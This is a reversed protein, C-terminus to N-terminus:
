RAIRSSEDREWGAYGARQAYLKARMRSLVNVMLYALLKPWLRWAVIMESITSSYDKDDNEFLEPFKEKLEYGGLRSRTKIKLLGKVHSPARIISEVGAISGREHSSFLLRIYGDDAIIDPFKEFRSRAEESLAYVGVGILGARCYPLNSWVDYYARVVWSAYSMDMKMCPSVAMLLGEELAGAMKKVDASKMRVDADMYVRPFGHAAADGVNLANTKSAKEVEICTIKESISGVILATRDSCANCVVVVEFEDSEIGSLLGSLCDQIVLEENHAPIIISIM